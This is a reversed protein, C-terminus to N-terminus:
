GKILEKLYEIDTDQIDEISFEGRKVYRINRMHYQNVKVLQEKKSPLPLYDAKIQEISNEDIRNLDRDFYVAYYFFCKCLNPYVRMYLNKEVKHQFVIKSGKFRKAYHEGAEFDPNQGAKILMNNVATEYDHAISVTKFVLKYIVQLNEPTKEKTSRSKATITNKSNGKEYFYKTLASFSVIGSRNNMVEKELVMIEGAKKNDDMNPEILNELKINSKTKVM